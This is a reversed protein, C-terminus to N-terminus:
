GALASPTPYDFVMTAPLRLGTVAGLRNRLEVATLSDFGHEKFSREAGIFSADDHSLVTAAETRVLEVLATLREALDLGSLRHLLANPEKGIQTNENTAAARRSPRGLFRTLLPSIEGREARSRLGSLDLRASVLLSDSARISADLSSLAERTTMPLTGGRAVRERDVRDLHGTLGSEEEWLGWAISVAPLGEHRRQAALSDLFTNAAAYNGQGAAGFVGAASSFLVFEEVPHDRTLEHLNWASDVKARLVPTLREPTMSELVGDDLVGAAHVVITLPRKEPVAAIVEALAARDSADCAVIEVEAGMGALDVRIEEAGPADAGRRGVLVVRSVDREAVLHRAVLGGLTGTGGVILATGGPTREIDAGPASGSPLVRSLRPCRVVGHRIAVQDDGDATATAVASPLMRLSEETDDVDVLLFRGPHESMATRVLGTVPALALEVPEGDTTSVANRTVLVLRASGPPGAALWERMLTLAARSASHAAAVVGTDSRTGSSVPLLGLSIVAEPPSVNPDTTDLLASLDAFFEADQHAKSLLSTEQTGGSVFAVATRELPVGGTQTEPWDFRYLLDGPRAHAHEDSVPRLVLSDVSIVLDGASDVATLSLEEPGKVLLRVYLASAGSSHLKVGSWSFPLRNQRQEESNLQVFAAAHLTADFLAPHLGYEQAQSSREGTLEVEAFIEDGWRWAQRLGRFAPGYDLGAGTLEDYVDTVPISIAEEPPRIGSSDDTNVGSDSLVGAAHRRWPHGEEVDDPCSYVRFQRRGEDDTAGVTVQLRFAVDEPIVLPAEIVLEDVTGCGSRDGALVALEVFATGPLLVRGGVAHDALWPHTAISLRGTLLVGGDEAQAVVAGLMPHSTTALGFASADGLSAPVSEAWYHQHQFPYTPLDLDSGEM